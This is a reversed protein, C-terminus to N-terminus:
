KEPLYSRWEDECNLIIDLASLEGLFGKKLNQQPYESPLVAEKYEVKVGANIFISEDLYSLAGTGSLYTDADVERCLNLVLESSKGMSNLESSKIFPTEIGMWKMILTILEINLEGLVNWKKIYLENLEKQYRLFGSTKGYCQKITQWHKHRWNSQNNIQTDVIKQGLKQVVPVTLWQAGHPTKIQNRNQIGNKQFDVNDLFIFLDSSEIKLFYPLWPLYQPQHIAVKM